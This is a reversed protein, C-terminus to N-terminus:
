PMLGEMERRGKATMYPHFVLLVGALYIGKMRKLPREADYLTYSVLWTTLLNIHQFRVIEMHREELVRPQLIKAQVLLGMLRTFGPLNQKWKRTIQALMVEHSLTTSCVFLMLCRHAYQLDMVQDLLKKLSALSVGDAWSFSGLLSAFQNEYEESLAVFLDTKTPFHNTIRSVNVEMHEALERLTLDVGHGNFIERTRDVIFQRTAEGKSQKAM